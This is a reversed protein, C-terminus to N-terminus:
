KEAGSDHESIQVSASYCASYQSFFVGVGLCRGGGGGVGVTQLVRLCKITSDLVQQMIIELKMM